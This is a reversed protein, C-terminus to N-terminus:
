HSSSKSLKGDDSKKDGSGEESSDTEASEESDEASDESFFDGQTELLGGFLANILAEDALVMWGDDSREVTIDVQNTVTALKLSSVSGAFLEGLKKERQVDDLPTESYADQFIFNIGKPTFDAMIPKMKVASVNATVIIQNEGVKESSLIESSIHNFLGNMYIQASGVGTYPKSLTITDMDIYKKAAEFDLEHFSAFMGNVAKEARRADMFDAGLLFFASVGAAVAIVLGGAVIILKKKSGGRFANNAGKEPKVKPEKPKKEKKEKPKKEKKEKPEKSKKEKPEKPKKEKPKKEKKPKAKPKKKEKPKKAAKAKKGKGLKANRTDEAENESPENSNALLTSELFSEQDAKMKEIKHLKKEIRQLKKEAFKIKKTALRQKSELKEQIKGAKKELKRQKRWIKKQMRWAKNDAARQKKEAIIQQKDAIQGETGTSGQSAKDQGKKEAKQKLM